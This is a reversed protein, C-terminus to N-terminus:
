RRSTLAVAAAGASEPDGSRGHRHSVRSMGRLREESLIRRLQRRIRAANSRSASATRAVIRAPWDACTDSFGLSFRLSVHFLTRSIKMLAGRGSNPAHPNLEHSPFVQLPPRTASPVPKSFRCLPDVGISPEFGERETTLLLGRTDRAKEKVLREFTPRWARRSRKGRWTIPM